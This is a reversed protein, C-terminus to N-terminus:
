NFNRKIKLTRRPIEFLEGNYAVKINRVHLLNYLFSTEEKDFDNMIENILNEDINKIKHFTDDFIKFEDCKIINEYNKLSIKVANEFYKDSENEINKQNEENEECEIFYCQIDDETLKANMKKREKQHHSVLKILLRFMNKKKNNDNLINFYINQNSFFSCICLINCKALSPFYQENIDFIKDYIYIIFDYINNIGSKGNSIQNLDNELTKLLIESYYLFFISFNGLLTQEIKENLSTDELSSENEKGKNSLQFYEVCYIINESIFYKIDDRSIGTNEFSLIQMTLLLTHLLNDKNCDPEDTQFSYALKILKLIMGISSSYTSINYMNIYSLFTSIFSYYYGAITKEKQIIPYINDIIKLTIDNISNINKMYHFGIEIIEDYFSYKNPDTICQIVPSIIDNFLNIENQNIKNKGTLFKKLLYFYQNTIVPSNKAELIDDVAEMFINTYVKLCTYIDDRENITIESIIKSIVTNFSSNNSYTNILGILIKFSNRIKEHFIIDLSNAKIENTNIIDKEASNNKKIFKLISSITDSAASILAEKSNDKNQSPSTIIINLLFNIMNEVFSYKNTRLKIEEEQTSTVKDTNFIDSIYSKYIECIKILIINSNIQHLKEQNSIFFLIFKNLLNPIKVINSKLLLIILFCFDIKIEDSFNNLVSKNDENLYISYKMPNQQLYNNANDGDFMFMLMEIVYNLILNCDDYYEFIKKILFCLSTRFNRLKFDYLIDQIYNIYTDPEEEMFQKESEEFVVFPFLINLLFYKIHSSFEEIIPNRILCRSLFLFINYLLNNYNKDSTLIGEKSSKIILFKEKNCLIDQLSTIVLRTIEAFLEISYQDKLIFSTSKGILERTSLKEISFSLYQFCYSKMTNASSFLKENELFTFSIIPNQNIFINKSKEGLPIQLKILELILKGYKKFMNLFIECYKVNDIDDIKSVTKLNFFLYEILCSLIDFYEITFLNKEPDIYQPVHKFINDLIASYYENIIKIYNNENILESEFISQIFKIVIKVSNVYEDKNQYDKKIENLLISFINECEMNQNTELSDKGNLLSLLTKLAQKLINILSDKLLNPNTIKPFYLGIIKKALYSIQENNLEYAKKEIINKLNVALSQHLEFPIQEDRFSAISLGHFLMDLYLELDESLSNLLSSIEKLKSSNTCTYSEKLLILTKELQELDNKM